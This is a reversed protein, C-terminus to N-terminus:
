VFICAVSYMHEVISSSYNVYLGRMVACILLVFCVAVRKVKRNGYTGVFINGEFEVYAVYPLLNM